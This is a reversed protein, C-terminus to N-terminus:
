TELPISDSKANGFLFHRPNTKILETRYPEFTNLFKNQVNMLDGSPLVVWYDTGFLTKQRLKENKSIKDFLTNFIEPEIVNFSFDSFANCNKDCCFDIIQQIVPQEGKDRLTEWNTDGGFHAFNIRIKRYKPHQVIPKWREPNNLFKAREIRNKGPIKFNEITSRSNSLYPFSNEYTSVIEGGCHTTIPINKEACIEFIPALRADDPLYGLSPYCKVGFFSPANDQAFAKLFLSYLNHNPDDIDARRPDIAFFPLIPRVMALGQLEEIQQYYKKDSNMAWGTELDMSLIGTVMPINKYQPTQILSFEKIYKDYIELMSGKRLVNWAEKLGKNDYGFVESGLLDDLSQLENEFAKWDAETDPKGKTKKIKKDMEKDDMALTPMADGSDELGLSTLLKNVMMRKAIYLITLCKKDFIHCHIDFICNPDAVAARAPPMLRDYPNDSIKNRAIQLFENATM